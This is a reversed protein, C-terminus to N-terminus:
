KRGRKAIIAIFYGNHWDSKQYFRQPELGNADTRITISAVVELGTERVARFTGDRVGQENFDDVILVFRECLAPLALVIGDYQDEEHHPGDFLFIHAPDAGIRNYDVARFDSEILEAQGGGQQFARLTNRFFADKPGGFESWDDICVATSSPNRAIAACVTSGAWSGVELYRCGPLGGVLSNIFTRYRRGSMGDMMVVWRPLNLKIRNSKEFAERVEREFKGDSFSGDFVVSTARIRGRHKILFVFRNKVNKYDRALRSYIKKILRNQLGNM